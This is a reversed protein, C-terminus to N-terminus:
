HQPEPLEQQAPEIGDAALPSKDSQRPVQLSHEGEAEGQLRRALSRSIGACGCPGLPASVACCVGAGGSSCPVTRLGIRSVRTRCAALSFELAPSTLSANLIALKLCFLAVLASFAAILLNNGVHIIHQTRVPLHHTLIALTFHGREAVAVAAGIL